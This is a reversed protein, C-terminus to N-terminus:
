NLASLARYPFTLLRERGREGELRGEDKKKRRSNKERARSDSRRSCALYGFSSLSELQDSGLTALQCLCKVLTYRLCSFYFHM